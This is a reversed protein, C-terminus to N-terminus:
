QNDQAFVADLSAADLIREAWDELQEVTAQALRTRVVPPLPGFRKTLQRELLRSAEVQRGEQRGEQWWQKTWDIVDETLMTKVGLLDGIEPLEVGPLRAPLLVRRIWVSFARDLEKQEPESLWELLARVVALMTDSTRTKELRFLAATLNQLALPVSEDIAGEDLLLYKLHPTYDQLRGPPVEILASIEQAANWRRVGNYLVLPLVPPLRGSPTFTKQKIIDQYLLGLYTLLRVAMFEDVSSQFELLLYVYLWRENFRVRWVIDDERDRLDDTVYSGSVKELTNWDLEAVWPEHVFGVLLDRVMQPHSFLNKYGNDHQAM